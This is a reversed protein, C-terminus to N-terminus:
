RGTVVVARGLDNAGTRANWLGENALRVSYAPDGALSPAADPLAVSLAYTGPAVPLTLSATFVATTGPQIASVAGPLTVESSGGPGSLRLLVPRDHLPAAFGDNALTIRVTTASGSTGVTPLATSVLRLRYGLGRQAAQRGAVGWSGLVEPDFDTNLFSWHYRALEVAATPWLSRPANVGCTEGGMPTSRSQAALWTRDSATAFTGMDTDSALFCDDHVGVRSARRDDTLLHRVISPYRVQLDIREDLADLWAGLVQGRRVWDDETLAWPRDPDTVYQESYYWEGWRGILGAQVTLVVDSAANLLPALQRIHGVTRSVPADHSDDPSYAFRIVLKVGATRATGLDKAVQSLFLPDLPDRDVMGGLYVVRYVVTIGETTRWNILQGTDLPTYASGDASWRTETYHTFGREPNAFVEASGPYTATTVPQVPRVAAVTGRTQAAASTQAPGATAPAVSTSPLAASSSSGPSVSGAPVVAPPVTPGSPAVSTVLPQQTVVAAPVAPGRDGTHHVAAASGLLAAVMSAALGARKLVRYSAPRVGRVVRRRIM